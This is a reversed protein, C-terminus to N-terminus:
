KHMGRRYPRIPLLVSGEEGPVLGEGDHQGAAAEDDAAALVRAVVPVICVATGGRNAERGGFTGWGRVRLPSM